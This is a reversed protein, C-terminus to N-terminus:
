DAGLLVGGGWLLKLKTGYLFASALLELALVAGNVMLELYSKGGRTVVAHSVEDERGRGHAHHVVHDHLRPAWREDVVKPLM